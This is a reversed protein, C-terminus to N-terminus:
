NNNKKINKIQSNNKLESNNKRRLKSKDDMSLHGISTNDVTQNSM